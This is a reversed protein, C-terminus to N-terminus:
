NESTHRVTIEFTELVFSHLKFDSDIIHCTVTIYSHQADSTWADTTFTADTVTFLINKIAKKTEEWMPVLVNVRLTERSPMNYREDLGHLLDSLAQSDCESLPKLDKIIM